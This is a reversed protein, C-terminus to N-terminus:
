FIGSDFWYFFIAFVGAIDLFLLLVCESINIIHIGMLGIGPVAIGKQVM